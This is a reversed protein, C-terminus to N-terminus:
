WCYWVAVERSLLRIADTSPVLEVLFLLSCTLSAGEANPTSPCTDFWPSTTRSATADTTPPLSADNTSYWLNSYTLPSPFSLLRSPCLAYLRLSPFSPFLLAFIRSPSPLKCWCEPVEVLLLFLRFLKGDDFFRRGDFAWEDVILVALGLLVPLDSDFDLFEISEIVALPLVVVLFRPRARRRAATRGFKRFLFFFLPAHLEAVRNERLGLICLHDIRSIFDVQQLKTNKKNIKKTTMKIKEGKHLHLNTFYICTNTNDIKTCTPFLLSFSCCM